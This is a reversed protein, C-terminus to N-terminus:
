AEPSETAVSSVWKGVPFKLLNSKNNAKKIAIFRRKRLNIKPEM